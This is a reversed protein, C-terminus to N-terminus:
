SSRAVQRERKLELKITRRIRHADGCARPDTGCLSCGGYRCDDTTGATLSKEWEKWLFSSSVGANIHSWPLAEDRPRSRHCYWELDLGCEALAQLWADFRFCERWGDFRTGLEWARQIVGAVRRDGRSLLAEIQSADFDNWSLKLGQMRSERRLIDQHHLIMGRREQPAWQFPTHPKPVFNSVGVHVSAGKGHYQRGVHLVRRALSCIASVDEDTETPLGIMFYLKITRWGRAYVADATALLRDDPIVKNIVKRLRETAAEPAFTFGTKRGEKIADALGVSFSEIRLSPLAVAVGDACYERAADQVIEEIQSHDSSSLSLLSLEGYGTNALAAASLEKVEAATRERVPRTVMGAQCFRCGRTCGRVIEIQARAHVPRMSPVIPTTPYWEPRLRPIYRKDVPRPEGAIRAITGDQNYEVTYLSPVYWGPIGAIQRLLDRRGRGGGVRHRRVVELMELLAEEGEGICVADLFPAMPEPNYASHGGAVILPDRDTRDAARLPIGSLDLMTLVNTYVTEYGLSFGIVDFDRCPRKSELSFLPLSAARMEAEMDPWPAYARECLYDPRGNLISYLIQVGQNSVGIEYADPYSLLVRLDVGDWDKVVSNWEGGAYRAPKKVRSLIGDLIRTDITAM